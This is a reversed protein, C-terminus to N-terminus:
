RPLFFDVDDSRRTNDEDRAANDGEDKDGDSLNILTSEEKLSKTPESMNTPCSGTSIRLDEKRILTLLNGSDCEEDGDESEKGGKKLRLRAEGREGM